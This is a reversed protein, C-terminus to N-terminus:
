CLFAARLIEDFDYSAIGLYALNAAAAVQPQAGRNRSYLAVKFHPHWCNAQIASTRLMDPYLM